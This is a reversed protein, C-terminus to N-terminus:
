SYVWMGLRSVGTGIASCEGARFPRPTESECRACDSTCREAYRLINMSDPAHPNYELLRHM